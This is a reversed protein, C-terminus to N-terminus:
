AMGKGSACASRVLLSSRLIGRGRVETFLGPRALGRDGCGRMM